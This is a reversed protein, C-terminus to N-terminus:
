WYYIRLFISVKFYHQRLIFSQVKSHQHEENHGFSKM